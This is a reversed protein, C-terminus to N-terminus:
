SLGLWYLWFGIFGEIYEGFFWEFIFFRVIKKGKFDKEWQIIYAYAICHEPIRPTQAITCFNFKNSKTMTNLTCEFCPTQGPIVIRAQGGFSETGGDILVKITHPLPKLEKDYEVFSYILSNLWRRAKINDLGAVIVQFQSYFVMDKDQIKGVHHTIECGPVRRKVFEAAVESKYRGVDKKRFLFQRNLNTVDISDLDIIHIKKFGLVAINKLLECGLGGAGVILINMNNLVFNKLDPGPQFGERAFGKGRLILRDLDTLTIKQTEM